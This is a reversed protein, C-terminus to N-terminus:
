MGVQLRAFKRTVQGAEPQLTTVIRVTETGDQNDAVETRDIIGTETDWTLLNDSFQVTYTVDGAGIVRIFEFVLVGLALANSGFPFLFKASIAAIMINATM